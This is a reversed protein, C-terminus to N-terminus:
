KNNTLHIKTMYYIFYLGIGLGFIMTDIFVIFLTLIFIKMQKIPKNSLYLFM